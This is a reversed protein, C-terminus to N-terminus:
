STIYLFKNNDTNKQFKSTQEQKITSINIYKKFKHINDMGQKRDILVMAKNKDAKM